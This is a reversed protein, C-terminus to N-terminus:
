TDSKVSPPTKILSWSNQTGRLQHHKWNCWPVGSNCGITVQPDGTKLVGVMDDMDIHYTGSHSYKIYIYMVNQCVCKCVCGCMCGHLCTHAVYICLHFRMSIYIPIGACPCIRLYIRLIACVYFYNM